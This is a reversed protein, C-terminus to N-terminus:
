SAFPSFDAFLLTNRNTTYMIRLVTYKYRHADVIGYQQQQAQEGLCAVSMDGLLDGKSKLQGEFTLKPHKATACFDDSKLHNDRDTNGTTISDVDADFQVRAGDFDESESEVSGNFTGFSGTVTSIM